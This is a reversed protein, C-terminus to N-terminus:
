WMDGEPVNVWVTTTTGDDSVTVTTTAGEIDTSRREIVTAEIPKPAPQVISILSVVVVLAAAAASLMTWFRLPRAAPATEVGDRLQRLFANMQADAIEPVAKRVAFGARMRELAALQRTCAPCIALHARIGEADALEGDFWREVREGFGCHTDNM